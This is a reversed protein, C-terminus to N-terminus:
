KKKCTVEAVADFLNGNSPCEDVFKSIKGEVLVQGETIKLVHNKLAPFTEQALKIPKGHWKSKCPNQGPKLKKAVDKGNVKIYEIIESTGDKNDFDTQTVNISLTCKGLKACTNNVPIRIKSVCGKTACQLPMKMVCNAEEEAVLKAKVKAAPALQRGKPKQAVLCTVIPVASLM